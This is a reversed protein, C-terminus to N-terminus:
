IEERWPKKASYSALQQQLHQNPLQMKKADKLAQQQWKVAQKFDGNEAAVAAQTQLYTQRDLYNKDIQTLYERAMKADRYKSDPHTSLVWAHRLKASPSVTAARALWYFGKSEDKEFRAGSFSEIALMYQADSIGAKAAKLLWGMSQHNDQTCMNGYLINRGLFYSAASNGQHAAQTYWENPNESLPYDSAFSPVLELFYAFGFKDSNSGTQAKERMAIIEKDLKHKNYKVGEMSFNFRMRLGNVDVAKGNVTMPEFQFQRLANIAAKEFAKSVSYTAIHDRTLGHKDITFTMDVFGSARQQLMSLPYAPPVRKIARQSKVALSTGSFVPTLKKEIAANGYQAFLEQYETKAQTQQTASLKALIKTHLADESISPNQAALAMWAYAKVPDKPHYEGRYYMAGLNLQADHDGYQAAQYFEKHAQEFEGAEYYNVGLEFDAHCISGWLSLALTTICLITNRQKM